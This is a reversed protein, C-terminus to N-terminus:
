RPKNKMNDLQNKVIDNDELRTLGTGYSPFKELIYTQFQRDWSFFIALATFLMLIGFLKQIKQTNSILWPHRTLLNRGGYTIALLPIATGIAYALTIVIAGLGISNTAALTIISALIPGVCPTWVLGLSMGVLVGSIYGDKTNQKPGFRSLRSFAQELVLQLKPLLLSMGFLAIVVVAVMRLANASLGTARVIASLFLTFFTFNLIFGTVVGLPRQKGGTISGSLVIPLIPLICPSLITVIGGLFAFLVLIIM